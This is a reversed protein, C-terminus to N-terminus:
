TGMMEMFDLFDGIVGRGDLGILGQWSTQGQGSSSEDKGRGPDALGQSHDSNICWFKNARM